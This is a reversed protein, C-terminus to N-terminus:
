YDSYLTEGEVVDGCQMNMGSSPPKGTVESVEQGESSGFDDFLDVCKQGAKAYIRSRTYVRKKM